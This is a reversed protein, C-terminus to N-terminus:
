CWRLRFESVAEECDPRFHVSFSRIEYIGGIFAGTEQFQEAPNGFREELWLLVDPYELLSDGGDIEFITECDDPHFTFRPDVDM